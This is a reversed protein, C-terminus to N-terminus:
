DGLGVSALAEAARRRRERSNVGQYLLPLEVNEVATTRPLLNFGQFVFGIQQGRVRALQDRSLKGVDRGNLLYMGRTPRDLCGILNMFTSKGSGSAGMIAVFEGPYVELSIGRLAHVQVEGLDYTKHLNEVQIVPRSNSLRHEFEIQSQVLGEPM